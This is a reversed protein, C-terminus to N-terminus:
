KAEVVYKNIHDMKNNTRKRIEIFLLVVVVVMVFTIISLTIILPKNATTSDSTKQSSSQWGCTNTYDKYIYFQDLAKNFESVTCYFDQNVKDKKENRCFDIYEGNYSMKIGYDTSGDINKILEWVINSAVPPYGVCDKTRTGEMVDKKVCELNALKTLLLYPALTSDHASFQIYKKKMKTPDKIKSEVMQKIMDLVPSVALKNADGQGFEGYVHVSYCKELINYFEDSPKIILDEVKNNERDMIMYDAIFYCKMTDSTTAPFVKEDIKYLEMAKALTAKFKESKTLEDDLAKSNATTLKKALPCRHQVEMIQDQDGQGGLFNHTPFPVYGAKLPTDDDTLVDFLLNEQPPLTRPDKKQFPLATSTFKLQLGQFHSVASMITRNFNTAYIFYENYAMETGLLNEYRTKTNVGLNYCQRIGVNTLEGAGIDSVWQSNPGLKYIPARSGHRAMEFIMVVNDTSKKAKAIIYPVLTLLFVLLIQKISAFM